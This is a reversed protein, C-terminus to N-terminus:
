ILRDRLFDVWLSHIRLWQVSIYSALASCASARCSLMRQTYIPGSRVLFSLNAFLSIRSSSFALRVLPSSLMTILRFSIPM